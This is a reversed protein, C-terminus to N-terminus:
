YPSGPGIGRGAQPTNPPPWIRGIGVGEGDQRPWLRRAPTARIPNGVTLYAEIVRAETLGADFVALQNVDLWCDGGTLFALCDDLTTGAVGYGGGTGSPRPIFSLVTDHITGDFPSSLPYRSNWHTSFQGIYWDGSRDTPHSNQLFLYTEGDVAAHDDCDMSWRLHLNIPDGSDWSTLANIRVMYDLPGASTNAIYTTDDDDGLPAVNTPAVITVGGLFDSGNLQIGGDDVTGAVPCTKVSM